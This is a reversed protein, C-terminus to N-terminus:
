LERQLSVLFKELCFPLYFIFYKASPTYSL